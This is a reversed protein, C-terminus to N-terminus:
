FLAALILVIGIMGIQWFATRVWPVGLAYAPVYAIRSWLYLHAGLETLWGNRGGLHAVIVAVAFLPLSEMLNRQARDLRGALGTLEIPRDRPGISWAIGTVQKAATSALGIQVLGLLVTGALLWLETTM